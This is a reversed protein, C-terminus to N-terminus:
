SRLAQVFFTLDVTKGASTADGEATFYPNAFLPLGSGMLDSADTAPSTFDLEVEYMLSTSSADDYVRVTAKGGTSSIKGHVGWVLCKSVDGGSGTTIKAATTESGNALSASTIIDAAIYVPITQAM